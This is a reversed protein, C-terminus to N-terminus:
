RQVIKDELAPVGIPRQRGDEKSIYGRMVPRAHYTGRILRQSLDRLNEELDKGSDQWTRGDEGPAAQRKLGLYAERLRDIEYVHHWLSTFKLERDRRAAQRIRDLANPLGESDPKAVGVQSQTWDSQNAPESQPPVDGEETEEALGRRKFLNKKTQEWLVWYDVKQPSQKTEPQNASTGSLGPGEMAVIPKDSKGPDNM